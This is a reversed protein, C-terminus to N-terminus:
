IQENNDNIKMAAITILNVNSNNDRDNAEKIELDVSISKMQSNWGRLHEKLCCNKETCWFIFTLLDSKYKYM